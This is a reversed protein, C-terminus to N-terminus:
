AAGEKSHMELAIGACVLGDDLAVRATADFPDGLSVDMTAIVRPPQLDFVARDGALRPLVNGCIINALECIADYQESLPPPEDEGLMSMAVGAIMSDPLTLHLTGSGAGAFDVALVVRSVGPLEPPLSERAPLPLMFCLSEFVELMALSLPMKWEANM